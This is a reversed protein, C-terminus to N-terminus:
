FYNISINTRFLEDTCNTSNHTEHGSFFVGRNAVSNVVTGDPMRTFGNNTNLYLIFAKHPYEFDVHKGHEILKTNRTYLNAKARVLAKVEIKTLIPFLIEFYDSNPKGNEYFVHIFYKDSQDGKHAIGRLTSYWPFFGTTMADLVAKFESKPLFNDVVKYSM